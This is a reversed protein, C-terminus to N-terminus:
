VVSIDKLRPTCAKQDAAYNLVYAFNIQPNNKLNLVELSPLRHLMM